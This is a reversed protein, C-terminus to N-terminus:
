IHGTGGLVLVLAGNKASFIWLLIMSLSLCYSLTERFSPSVGLIFVQFSDGKVCRLILPPLPPFCKRFYLLPENGLIKFKSFTIKTQIPRSFFFILTGPIAQIRVQTLVIACM